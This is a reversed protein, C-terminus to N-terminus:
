YKIVINVYRQNIIWEKLEVRFTRFTTEKKCSELQEESLMEKLKAVPYNVRRQEYNTLIFKDNEFTDVGMRELELKADAKIGEQEEKLKKIEENIELYRELKFVM